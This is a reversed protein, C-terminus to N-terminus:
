RGRCKGSVTKIIVVAGGHRDLEASDLWTMHATGKETAYYRTSMEFLHSHKCRLVPESSRQVAAVMQPLAIKVRAACWSVM